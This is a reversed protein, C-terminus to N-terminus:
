AVKIKEKVSSVISFRSDMLLGRFSAWDFGLGPCVKGSMTKEMKISGHGQITKMEAFREKLFKYLAMLANYQEDTYKGGNNRDPNILEVGITKMDFSGTSSHYVYNHPNILEIIEGSRDIMYQFLAIGRKYQDKRFKGNGIDGGNLMWRICDEAKSGGATGHIILHTVGSDNRGFGSHYIDRIRTDIKYGYPMDSISIM